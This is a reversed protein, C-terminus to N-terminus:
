LVFSAFHPATLAVVRQVVHNAHPSEVAELVHGRLESALRERTDTNSRDLVSQVLLSGRDDLALQLVFGRLLKYAPVVQVHGVGLCYECVALTDRSKIYGNGCHSCKKVQEALNIARGLADEDVPVPADHLGALRVVRKDLEESLLTFWAREQSRPGKQAPVRYIHYETERPRRPRTRHSRKDPIRGAM